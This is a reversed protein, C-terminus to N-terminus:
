HRSRIFPKEFLLYFVYGTILQVPILVLIRLPMYDLSLNIV